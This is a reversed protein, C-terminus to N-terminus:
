ADLAGNGSRAVDDTGQRIVQDWKRTHRWANYLTLSQRWDLDGDMNQSQRELHVLDIWPAVWSGHGLERLKLCFDSDEFDGVPYGEDLGGVQRYVESAVMLCAATIAPVRQVVHAGPQPPLGKGPHDNLWVGPFWPEQVFEMGGHQLSGDPFLLRPGLAGPSPLSEYAEVMEALWGHRRPMVDSNLMLLLPGRAIRAGMNTAKAFGNNQDSVVVRCPVGFIPYIDQCLRVAEPAIGPDDIVYILEAWRMDPDDALLAMQYEIFDYRGYIPVVISVKPAPPTAGVDVVHQRQDANEWLASVAPGVHQELVDPERPPVLTLIDRIAALPNAVNRIIPRPALRWYMADTGMFDLQLGTTIEYDSVGELRLLCAFGLRSKRSHGPWSRYEGSVDPRALWVMDRPAITTSTDGVSATLSIIRDNPDFIWGVLFVGVGPILFVFEVRAAIGSSFDEVQHISDVQGHAIGVGPPRPKGYRPGQGERLM